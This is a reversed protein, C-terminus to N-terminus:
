LLHIHIWPIRKKYRETNANIIKRQNSKIKGQKKRLREIEKEKM